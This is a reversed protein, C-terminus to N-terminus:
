TACLHAEFGRLLPLLTSNAERTLCNTKGIASNKILSQELVVNCNLSSFRNQFDRKWANKSAFFFWSLKFAEGGQRFTSNMNSKGGSLKEELPLKGFEVM